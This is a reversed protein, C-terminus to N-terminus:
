DFEITSIESTVAPATAEPRQREHSHRGRLDPATSRAEGDIEATRTHAYGGQQPM